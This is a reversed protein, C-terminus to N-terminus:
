WMDGNVASTVAPCLGFHRRWAAVQRRYGDFDALGDHRAPARRRYASFGALGLATLSIMM